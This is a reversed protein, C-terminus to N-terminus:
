QRAARPRGCILGTVIVTASIAVAVRGDGTSAGAGYGSRTGTGVGSTLLVGAIKRGSRGETEICVGKRM